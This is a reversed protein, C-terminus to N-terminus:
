RGLTLSDPVIIFVPVSAVLATRGACIIRARTLGKQAHFELPLVVVLCCPVTCDLINQTDKTPGPM